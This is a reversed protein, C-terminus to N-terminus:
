IKGTYGVVYGNDVIRGHHMSKPRKDEKSKLIVSFLREAQSHLKLLSAMTNVIILGSSSNSNLTPVGLVLQLRLYIGPHGDM